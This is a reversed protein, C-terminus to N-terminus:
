QQNVLVVSMSKPGDAEDLKQRRCHKKPPKPASEDAPRPPVEYIDHPQSIRETTHQTVLNKTMFEVINDIFEM